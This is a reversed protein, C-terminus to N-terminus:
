AIRTVSARCFFPANDDEVYYDGSSSFAEFQLSTGDSLYAPVFLSLGHRHSTPNDADGTRDADNQGFVVNTDNNIFRIGHFVDDGGWDTYVHAGLVYMGDENIEWWHSTSSFHAILANGDQYRHHPDNLNVVTWSDNTVHQRSSLRAQVLCTGFVGGTGRALGGLFTKGATITQSTDTSVVVGSAPRSVRRGTNSDVAAAAVTALGAPVTYRALEIAYAPLTPAVTTGTVIEVQGRPDGSAGGEAVDYIRLVVLDVRATGGANAPVTLLNAAAATPVRVLYAGGNTLGTTADDTGGGASTAYVVAAGRNVTLINSGNAVVKLSNADRVGPTWFEGIARFDAAAYGVFGEDDEEEGLSGLVLPTSTPFTTAM